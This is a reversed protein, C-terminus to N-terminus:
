DGTQSKYKPYFDIVPDKGKDVLLKSYEKISVRRTDFSKGGAIMPNLMYVGKKMNLVINMEVLARISDKVVRDPHGKGSMVQSYRNFDKIVQHNFLFQNTTFDVYYYIIFLLLRKPLGELHFIYEMLEPYLVVGNKSVKEEATEPMTVNDSQRYSIVRDFKALAYKGGTINKNFTFDQLIKQHANTVDGAISIYGQEGNTKGKKMSANMENM